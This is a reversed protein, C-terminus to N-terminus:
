KIGQDSPVFSYALEMLADASINYGTITYTISEHVFVVTVRNRVPFAYVHTGGKEGELYDANDTPILIEPLDEESKYKELTIKFKQENGNSFIFDIDESDEMAEYHSEELEFFGNYAMEAPLESPVFPVIGHEGCVRIMNDAIYSIMKDPATGSSDSSTTTTVEQVAHTETTISIWPRLPDYWATGTTKPPEHHDKPPKVPDRRDNHPLRALDITFGSRTRKLVAEILNEGYTALTYFNLAICAVFCASLATAWRKIHGIKKRRVEAVRGIINETPPPSPQADALEVMAATIESIADFDREKEPKSLEEDLMQQLDSLMVEDSLDNPIISDIDKMRVDSRKWDYMAYPERVTYVGSKRDTICGGQLPM